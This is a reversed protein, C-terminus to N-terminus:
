DDEVDKFAVARLPRPAGPSGGPRVDRLTGGRARRALEEILESSSFEALEYARGQGQRPPITAPEGGAMRELAGLKEAPPQTEGYSWRRLTSPDVGLVAAVDNRKMGTAALLETIRQNAM